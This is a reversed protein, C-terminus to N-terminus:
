NRNSVKGMTDLAKINEVNKKKVKLSTTLLFAVQLLDLDKM